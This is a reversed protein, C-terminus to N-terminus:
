GTHAAKLKRLGPLLIIWAAKHQSYVISPTALATLYDETSQAALRRPTVIPGMLTHPNPQWYFTGDTQIYPTTKLTEM